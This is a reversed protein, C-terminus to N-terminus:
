SLIYTYVCYRIEIKLKNLQVVLTLHAYVIVLRQCEECMM